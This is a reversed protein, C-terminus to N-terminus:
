KKYEKKVENILKKALIKHAEATIANKYAIYALSVLLKEDYVKQKEENSPKGLKSDLTKYAFDLDDKFEKSLKEYEKDHYLKYVKFLEYHDDNHSNADLNLIFSIDDLSVVQKLLCISILYALHDRTYKKKEPSPITGDKVYNNIMYSTILKEEDDTIYPELVNQLYKLTQEMLLGNSPMDDLSPISDEKLSDLWEQVDNGINLSM